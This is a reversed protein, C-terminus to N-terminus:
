ANATKVPHLLGKPHVRMANMQSTRVPCRGGHRLEPAMGVSRREKRLDEERAALARAKGATTFDALGFEFSWTTDTPAFPMAKLSMLFM